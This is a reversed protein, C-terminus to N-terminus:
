AAENPTSKYSASRAALKQRAAVPTRLSRKAFPVLKAQNKQACRIKSLLHTSNAIAILAGELVAELIYERPL